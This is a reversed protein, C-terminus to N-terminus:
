VEQQTSNTYHDTLWAAYRVLAYPTPEAIGYARLQVCARENEYDVPMFSLHM